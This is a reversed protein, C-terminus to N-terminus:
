GELTATFNMDEVDTVPYDDVEVEINKVGGALKFDTFDIVGPTNSLLAAVVTYRIEEDDKASTYYEKM